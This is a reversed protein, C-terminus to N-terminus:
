IDSMVAASYRQLASQNVASRSLTIIDGVAGGVHSASVMELVLCVDTVLILNM